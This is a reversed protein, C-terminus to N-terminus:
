EDNDDILWSLGEPGFEDIEDAPNFLIMADRGSKVIAAILGSAVFMDAFYGHGEFVINGEASEKEGRKTRNGVTCVAVTGREVLESEGFLISGRM